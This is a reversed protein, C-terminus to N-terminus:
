SEVDTLKRRKWTQVFDTSSMLLRRVGVWRLQVSSTNNGALTSHSYRGAHYLQLLFNVSVSSVVFVYLPIPGPPKAHAVQPPTQLAYAMTIVM